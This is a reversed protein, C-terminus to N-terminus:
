SERFLYGKIPLGDAEGDDKLGKEGERARMWEFVVDKDGQMGNGLLEYGGGRILGGKHMTCEVWTFDDGQSM